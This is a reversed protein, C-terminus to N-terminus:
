LQPQLHKFHQKQYTQQYNLPQYKTTDLSAYGNAIGKNSKDEKLSAGTQLNTINTNQTTIRADFGELQAKTVTTQVLAGTTATNIDPIYVKDAVLGAKKIATPDTEATVNSTLITIWSSGTYRRISNTSNNIYTYGEDDLSLVGGRPSTTPDSSAFNLGGKQSPSLQLLYDNLLQGWTGNDTGVQPQRQIPM